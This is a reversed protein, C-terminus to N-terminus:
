LWMYGVSGNNLFEFRLVIKVKQLKDSVKFFFFSRREEVLGEYYVVEAKAILHSIVM